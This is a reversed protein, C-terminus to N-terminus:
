ILERESYHHYQEGFELVAAESATSLMPLGANPCPIKAVVETGNELTMLLAKHFGGEVKEMKAVKSVTSTGKAVVSSVLNCLEDINFRIYRRAFQYEKDVLFHGNNYQFVEEHSIPKGTM